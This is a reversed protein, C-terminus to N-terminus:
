GLEVDASVVLEAALHVLTRAIQAESHREVDGAVGQHSAHKGLNATELATFEDVGEAVGMHVRIVDLRKLLLEFSDRVREGQELEIRLLHVDVVEAELVELQDVVSM